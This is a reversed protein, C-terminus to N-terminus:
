AHAMGGKKRKVIRIIEPAAVAIIILSQIVTVVNSSVNTVRAMRLAGSNLVAFLLATLLVGLPHNRGLIAVAIGTFGYSPSFGEIFRHYNGLVECTGAWGALGGCLGMTLLVLLNADIGSAAAASANFGVARLKYGASTHWLFIYLGLAALLVFLISTTLKTGSVLTTLSLSEPLKVTQVSTEGSSFRGAALYSTFLRFVYNLMIAAIVESIQFKAKLIGATLGGLMGGLFGAAMLLVIAIGRPLDGMYLGAVAVAMAGLYLQGEAGINLLGCRASLAVSLGTFILPVARSLTNALYTKTGFAGYLLEKFAILPNEGVLLIILAGILIAGCISVCSKLIERGFAAMADFARQKKLQNM